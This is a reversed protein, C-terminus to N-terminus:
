YNDHDEEFPDDYEDEYDEEDGSRSAITLVLFIVALVAGAIAGYLLWKDDGRKLFAFVASGIYFILPLVFAFITRKKQMILLLLGSVLMCLALVIYITGTTANSGASINNLGAMFGKYAFFGFAVISIIGFIIRLTRFKPKPEEKDVPPREPQPVATRAASAAAPRKAPQRELDSDTRRKKVPKRNPDTSLMDEYSQKVAQEKKARIKEPPINGYKQPSNGSPAANGAAAPRKQPPRTGAQAQKKVPAAPNGDSSAPRKAAGAPRGDPSAPRKAPATPRGDPSVSRKAPAAPRGDASAPKKGGPAPKGDPATSRKSSPVPKGDPSATKKASVAPKGDPSVPKKVPAATTGDSSAPRKAPAAPKGDPSVPRKAPSGPKGDPSAPKRAPDATKGVSSAPRKIQSAPGGDSATKKAPAAATGEPAGAKKPAASNANPVATKKAQAPKSDAAQANAPRAKQSVKNDAAQPAAKKVADKGSESQVTANKTHDSASTNVAKKERQKDLNWQKKCDRCIAYENFIPKGNEDVGVQKNQLEVDKGCKPCRM